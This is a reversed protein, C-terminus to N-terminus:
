FMSCLFVYWVIIGAGADVIAAGPVALACDLVTKSALKDVVAAPPIDEAQPWSPLLVDLAILPIKSNDNLLQRTPRGLLYIAEPRGGTTASNAASDTTHQARATSPPHRREHVRPENRQTPKM